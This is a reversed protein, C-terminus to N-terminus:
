LTCRLSDRGVRGGAAAKETDNTKGTVDRTSRKLSSTQERQSLGGGGENNCSLGRNGGSRENLIIFPFRSKPFASVWSVLPSSVRRGRNSPRAIGYTSFRRPQM